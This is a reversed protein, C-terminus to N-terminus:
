RWPEISHGLISELREIDERYQNSLFSKMETSIPKPKDLNRNKVGKRIKERKEKNFVLRFLPRLAKKVPNEHTILKQLAPNKPKGSPNHSKALEWSDRPSVGIFEVLENMFTTPDKILDEFFMVKVKKFHNLYAEVQSAYLGMKYHHWMFDYGKEIRGQEESLSEEFSLTEHLDKTFHLYSSYCRSVPNRLVICISVDDGLTKKIEPISERHHYLYGTGIEGVHKENSIDSYINKYDATELFLDELPRQLPYPLQNGKMIERTFYFTEKVPIEIDAHQKLYQYISTTGAKATGVFLFKPLNM